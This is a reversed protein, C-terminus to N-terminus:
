ALEIFRHERALREDYARCRDFLGAYDTPHDRPDLVGMTALRHRAIRERNLRAEEQNLIENLNDYHMIFDM